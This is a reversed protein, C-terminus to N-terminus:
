SRMRRIRKWGSTAGRWALARAITATGARSRVSRSRRGVSVLEAPARVTLQMPFEHEPRAGTARAWARVKRSAGQGPRRGGHTQFVLEILGRM